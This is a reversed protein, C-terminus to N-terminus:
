KNNTFISTKTFEIGRSKEIYIFLIAARLCARLSNYHGGRPKLKNARYHLCVKVENM